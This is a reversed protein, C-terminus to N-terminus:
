CVAARAEKGSWMTAEIRHPGLGTVARSSLGRQYGRRRAVGPVVCRMTCWVHGDQAM